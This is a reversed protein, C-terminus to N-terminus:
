TSAPDHPCAQCESVLDSDAHTSYGQLNRHLRGQRQAVALDDGPKALHNM